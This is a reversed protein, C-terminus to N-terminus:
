VPPIHLDTDTGSQVWRAGRAGLTIVVDRVPLDTAAHGTATSLQQAEVENLVLMDILPLMATVAAVDFPAAAYVVRMGQARAARAGDLGATTENQFVFIDHETAEALAAALHLPGLAHNAGPCLLIQNEGADDVAIIAHGTPSPCTVIHRTDVGYEMLREVAWGGDPGVAGIHITRAAARAAAVSMNAGKGGLGRDVSRAALTEGPGPLHPVRYTMDANISGLNFIAM